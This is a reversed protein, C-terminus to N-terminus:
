FRFYLFPNFGADALAAISLLLAFLPSVTRFFAINRREALRDLLRRNEEELPSRHQTLTGDLDFCLLRKM